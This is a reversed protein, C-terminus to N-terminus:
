GSYGTDAGGEKYSGLFMWGHQTIMGVYGRSLVHERCSCIFVSFLDNKGAEYYKKVYDNLKSTMKGSDMYPPNTCTIWYGKAMVEGQDILQMLRESAEQNWNLSTQGMKEEPTAFRRLLEWDMEPINLISGYEKADHFLEVLQRAKMMVAFYALQYARDDIDLGYINNELIAKAAERESYGVSTYIQELVDFMYVLIHGSGMCPDILVKDKICHGYTSKVRFGRQKQAKRRKLAYLPLASGAWYEYATATATTM